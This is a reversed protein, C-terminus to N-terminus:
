EIRYSYCYSSLMPEARTKQFEGSLHIQGVSAIAQRMELKIKKQKIKLYKQGLAIAGSSVIVINKKKNALEKLDKVLSNLWKERLKGRNDVINSSGIKIVITKANEIYM